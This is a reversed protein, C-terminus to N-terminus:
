HLQVFPAISPVGNTDLIFLMYYGPPALNGNLPATVSLSGSGPQFALSLFRQGGNFAHTVSGLRVLSVTAIRAADPTAVSFTSGYAIATPASTITPRAGKFLYPPSYIQASFQDVAPGTGNTLRGSGAALVRGDPLLLATSHYLRPVQMAAMTAWTETIPSWLEANYVVSAPDSVNANSSGGIVLVTGDPLLTLNHTVRAFVMPSTQRWAPTAQTMDLVYTTSSPNGVGDDWAAGTKLVAGPRYMASSGGDISRSDVTTWTQSGIDLVRTPIVEESSAAQLVRGDPLLFMHPYQTPTSSQAGALQRWTNAVPDYVEPISAVCTPCTTHGATALVKGDTLTIVTPYWRGYAMSALQSWTLTTPDFANAQQSGVDFDIHGGDVLIRGDSLATQGACFFTFNVATDTVDTFTGAIPDWVQNSNRTGTDALDWALIKGTPLLAMHVAVIPWTIVASWQGANSTTTTTVTVHVPASQATNGAFDRAVATLVHASGPQASSTDWVVSYPAGTVAAGLSAGDLLFQVSAVGVNDSATASVSVLGFVTAGDAPGNLSVTPPTTDAPAGMPAFAVLQMVWWGTSNLPATATYSGPATAVGDEAIDGDPSTIVRSTFGPGAGSTSTAVTNAAVLLVNGTTTTLSGSSSTTSSGTAATTANLPNVTDLGSYELIRIDVFAAATSFRVTVANAGGRINPAYYMSQSSQGARQTPGV